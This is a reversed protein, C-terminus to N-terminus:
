VLVEVMAMDYSAVKDMIEQPLEDFEGLITSKSIGDALYNKMNECYYYVKANIGKSTKALLVIKNEKRGEARFKQVRYDLNKLPDRKSAFIADNYKKQIRNSEDFLKKMASDYQKKKNEQKVEAKGKEIKEQKEQIWKQYRTLENKWDDSDGSVSLVKHIYEQLLENELDLGLKDELPFENIIEDFFSKGEKELKNRYNILPTMEMYATTVVNLLYTVRKQVCSLTHRISEEYKSDFSTKKIIKKALMIMQYQNKASQKMQLLKHVISEDIEEVQKLFAAIVTTVRQFYLYNDNYENIERLLEVNIKKLAKNETNDIYVDLFEHFMDTMYKNKDYVNNFKTRPKIM